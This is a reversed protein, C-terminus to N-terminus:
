SALQQTTNAGDLTERIIDAHGSHQATEKILHLLIRRTSWFVPEPPSWPAEPLPVQRNLDPLARAVRDTDATAAAYDELLASLSEGDQVYYQEFDFMGAPAGPQETMIHTWAREGQALHKIVGALSLDSATSRSQGGEDDVDRVTILLTERQEALMALLDDRESSPDDAPSPAPSASQAQPM